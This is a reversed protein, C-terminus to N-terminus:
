PALRVVLARIGCNCCVGKHPQGARQKRRHCRRCILTVDHCLPATGGNNPKCCVPLLCAASGM